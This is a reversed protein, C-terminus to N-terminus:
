APLLYDVLSTATDWGYNQFSRGGTVYAGGAYFMEYQAQRSGFQSGV